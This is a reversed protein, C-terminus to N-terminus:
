SFPWFLHRSDVQNSSIAQGSYYVKHIHLTTVSLCYHMLFLVLNKAVETSGSNQSQKFVKLGQPVSAKGRGWVGISIVGRFLKGTFSLGFTLTRLLVLLLIANGKAIRKAINKKQRCVPTFSFEAIMIRDTNLAFRFRQHRVTWLSYRFEHWRKCHRLFVM